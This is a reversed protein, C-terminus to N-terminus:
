KTMHEVIIRAPSIEPLPYLEQCRKKYEDRHTLGQYIAGEMDATTTIQMPYGKPLPLKDCGKERKIHPNLTEGVCLISPIGLRPAKVAGDTGHGTVIIGNASCAELLLSYPIIESRQLNTTESPAYDASNEVMPVGLMNAWQVAQEYAERSSLDEKDRSHRSFVVSLRHLPLGSVRLRCCANLLDILINGAQHYPGGSYWIWPDNVAIGLKPKTALARVPDINPVDCGVEVVNMHFQLDKTKQAVFLTTFETFVDKWVPALHGCPAEAYGYAPKKNYIAALQLAREITDDTGTPSLMVLVADMETVIENVQPIAQRVSGRLKAVCCKTFQVDGGQYAAAAPSDDELFVFVQHGAEILCTTVLALAKAQGVHCVACAIKMLIVRKRPLNQLVSQGQYVGFCM